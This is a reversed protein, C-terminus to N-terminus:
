HLTSRKTRKCHLLMTNKGYLVGHWVRGDSGWFWADIRLGTINHKGKKWVCPFELTGPWNTIKNNIPDFYLTIKGTREMFHKDRIACCTYCVKGYENTAYGTGGNSLVPKEEKCDICIFMNLSEITTPM